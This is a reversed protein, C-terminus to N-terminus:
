SFNIQSGGSKFFQANTSKKEDERIQKKLIRVLKNYLEQYIPNLDELDKILEYVVKSDGTKVYKIVARLFIIESLKDDLKNVVKAELSNIDSLSLYDVGLIKTLQIHEHSNGQFKNILSISEDYRGVSTLILAMNYVTVFNNPVEILAKELYGYATDFQDRKGYMIGLNNYVSSKLRKNKIIGSLVRDYYYLAKPFEGALQFCLGIEVQYLPNPKNRHLKKITDIEKFFDKSLCKRDIMNKLASYDFRLLEFINNNLELSKKMDRSVFKNNNTTLSSCSSFLLFLLFLIKIEV